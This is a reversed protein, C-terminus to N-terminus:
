LNDWYEIMGECYVKGRPIAGIQGISKKLAEARSLNRVYILEPLKRSFYRVAEYEGIHNILLHDDIIKAFKAAKAKLKFLRERGITEIKQIQRLGHDRSADIDRGFAHGIRNRTQRIAELDAHFREVSTPLPGFLKAMAELRSSWTGKTCAVIHPKIDVRSSGKKLLLSGDVSKSEGLLVGPNSEIALQVVAALYTELNAAITMVANLNVWNDFMCYERSWHQLDSFHDLFRDSSNLAVVASDTWAAEQAGLRNYTYRLAGLHATHIVGLEDDYKAFLQLSWTSEEHAAWRDFKIKSKAM